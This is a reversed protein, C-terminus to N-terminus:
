IKEDKVRWITKVEQYCLKGSIYTHKIITRMRKDDFIKFVLHKNGIDKNIIKYGNQNCLDKM